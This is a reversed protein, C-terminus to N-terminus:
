ETMKGGTEVFVKLREEVFHRHVGDVIAALEADIQGSMNCTVTVKTSESEAEYEYTTVVKVARGAFGPPGDLRLLKGPV